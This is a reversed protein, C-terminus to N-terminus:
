DEESVRGGTRKFISEVHSALLRMISPEPTKLSDRTFVHGTDTAIIIAALVHQVDVPHSTYSELEIALTILNRGTASDVSARGSEDLEIGPIIQRRM